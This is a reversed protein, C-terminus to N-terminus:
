VAGEEEECRRPRALHLLKGLRVQARVCHLDENASGVRLQDGVLGDGLLELLEGRCLLGLPQHLDDRLLRGVGLDDDEAVRLGVAGLELGVLLAEAATRTGNVFGSGPTGNVFGSGPTGNVFGLGPTGKVFGSSSTGKVFGRGKADRGRYPDLVLVQRWQM